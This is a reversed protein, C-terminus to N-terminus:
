ILSIATQWLSVVAATADTTITGTGDSTTITGTGGPMEGPAVAAASPPPTPPPDGSGGPMEGDGYATMGFAFTLVAAAMTLKFRKM